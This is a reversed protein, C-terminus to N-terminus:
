AIGAYLDAEELSRIHRYDHHVQRADPHVLFVAGLSSLLDRTKAVPGVSARMRLSHFSPLERIANVDLDAALTGDRPCILAAQALTAHHPLPQETAALFHDPATYATATLLVLNSGYVPLTIAPAISGHLRAGIEIFVPGNPTLMVEAHTPGWGIGFADLVDAVYGALVRRVPEDPPLLASLDYVRSGDVVRKDARWVEIARHQGRASITDVMYEEGVLFEQALFARNVNGWMDATGVMDAFYSDVDSASHVTRVGLTGAGRLPKLVIPYGVHGAAFSQAQAATCVRASRAHRIGADRLVEVMLAKDRKAATREIGNGTPMGLRQALRDAPGVGSELGAVVHQVRYDRLRLLVDDVDGRYDVVDIVGPPQGDRAYPTHEEDRNRVHVVPLGNAYFAAPLFSGSGYADVIVCVAKGASM